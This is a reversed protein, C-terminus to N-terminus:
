RDHYYLRDAQDVTSLKEEPVWGASADLYGVALGEPAPDMPVGPPYIKMQSGVHPAWSSWGFPGPSFSDFCWCTILTKSSPKRTVTISAPSYYVVNGGSYIHQRRGWYIWGIYTDQPRVSIPKGIFKQRGFSQCYTLDDVLGYKDRLTLYTERYFWVYDDGLFSRMGRPLYSGNDAAYENCINTIQHLNSVDVGHRALETARQLSPLLISALLAVIAVVVLLEVLTFGANRSRTM